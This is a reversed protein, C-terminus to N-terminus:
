FVFADNRIARQAEGEEQLRERQLQRIFDQIPRRSAMTNPIRFHSPVGM